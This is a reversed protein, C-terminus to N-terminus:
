LCDHVEPHSQRLAELLLVPASQSHTLEQPEIPTQFKEIVIDLGIDTLWCVAASAFPMLPSGSPVGLLVGCWFGICLACDFLEDIKEHKSRLWNRPRDLITAYKLIFM